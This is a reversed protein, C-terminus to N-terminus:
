GEVSAAAIQEPLSWIPLIIPSGFTISFRYCADSWDDGPSANPVPRRLFGITQGNLTIENDGEAIGSCGTVIRQGDLEGATHFELEHIM